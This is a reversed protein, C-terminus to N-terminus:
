VECGLIPKVLEAGTDLCLKCNNLKFHCVVQLYNFM